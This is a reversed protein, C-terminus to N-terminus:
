NMINNEEFRTYKETPPMQTDVIIQLLRAGIVLSSQNGRGKEALVRGQGLTSKINTWRRRRQGLM